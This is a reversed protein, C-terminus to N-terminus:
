HENQVLVKYLEDFEVAWAWMSMGLEFFQTFTVKPHTTMFEKAVEFIDMADCFKKAVENVDKGEPEIVYQRFYSLGAIAKYARQILEDAHENKAIKGDNLTPTETSFHDSVFPEKEDAM